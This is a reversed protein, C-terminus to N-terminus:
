FEYTFGFTSRWQTEENFMRGIGFDLIIGDFAQFNAGVLIETLNKDECIVEGVSTFKELLSFELAGSAIIEGSHTITSNTYGFNLHLLVKRTEKSIIGNLVYESTGLENAFSVSIGPIKNVEGLFSYKICFGPLGIKQDPKILYPLAIAFDLRKTMGHKLSVECTHEIRTFEYGFELELKGIDVIYADDTSLPRADLLMFIVLGCM